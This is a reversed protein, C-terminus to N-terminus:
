SVLSRIFAWALIAAALLGTIVTFLVTAQWARGFRITRGRELANHRTIAAGLRETSQQNDHDLFLRSLEILQRSSYFMKWAEFLVFAAVSLLMLLAAWVMPKKGLYDKTLNWLGFFSAYGALIVINTYAIAKDYAASLLKIQAETIAEVDSAGKEPPAPNTAGGNM